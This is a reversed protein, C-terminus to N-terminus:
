QSQRIESSLPPTPPRRPRTARALARAPAAAATPAGRGWWGQSGSGRRRGGCEGQQGAAPRSGCEGAASAAPATIAPATDVPRLAGRGLGGHEGPAAGVHSADLAHRTQAFSACPHTQPPTQRASYVDAPALLSTCRRGSVRRETKTSRPRQWCVRCCCAPPCRTLSSIAARQSPTPPPAFLGCM